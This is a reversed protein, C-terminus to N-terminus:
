GVQEVTLVDQWLIFENNVLVAEQDNAARYVKCGKNDKMIHFVTENDLWMRQLKLNPTIILAYFKNMRINDIM